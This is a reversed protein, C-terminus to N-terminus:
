VLHALLTTTALSACTCQALLDFSALCYCIKDSIVGIFEWNNVGVVPRHWRSEHSCSLLNLHLDTSTQMASWLRQLLMVGRQNRTPQTKLESQWRQQRQHLKKKMPVVCQPTKIQTTLANANIFTGVNLFHHFM